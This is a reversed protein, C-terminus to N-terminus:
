RKAVAHGRLRTHFSIIYTYISCINLFHEHTRVDNFWLCFQSTLSFDTRFSLHNGIHFPNPNIYLIWTQDRKINNSWAEDNLDSFCRYFLYQYRNSMPSHINRLLMNKITRIAYFQNSILNCFTELFALIQGFIGDSIRSYRQLM